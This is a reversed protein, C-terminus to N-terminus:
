DWPQHVQAPRLIRSNGRSDVIRHEGNSKTLHHFSQPNAPDPLVLIVRWVTEDCPIACARGPRWGWAIDFTGTPFPDTQDANWLLFPQHTAPNWVCQWAYIVDGPPVPLRPLTLDVPWTKGRVTVSGQFALGRPSETVALQDTQAWASEITYSEM